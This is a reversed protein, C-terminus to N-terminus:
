PYVRENFDAPVQNHVYPIDVHNPDLQSQWVADLNDRYWAFLKGLQAQRKLVEIFSMRM